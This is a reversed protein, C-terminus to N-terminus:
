ASAPARRPSAPSGPSPGLLAVIATLYYPGWTSCRGPATPTSSTRTRTGADVPGGGLMAASVALPEGIAGEDILARAAQYAGGLFIDPACGLRLGRREAEAVLEAAEAVTTDRAAERHLRAQRGRAGARIVAAHVRPPTLNLVVDIAPDAILEDVTAGRLGHEAALTQPPARTSTPAPSSEFADFARANLAYQRSIVGCGVIGVNMGTRLLVRLAALSGRAGDLPPATRRTRSSSCGSPARRARPRFSAGYDVGGEGVPLVFRKRATRFDKVHVLPVRGALPELREVPDDGAWWTWGLDLELYVPEDEVAPRPVDARRRARQVEADHNHFGFDVDRAPRRAPQARHARRGCRPRRM